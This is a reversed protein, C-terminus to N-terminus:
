RDRRPQRAAADLMALRLAPRDKALQVSAKSRSMGDDTLAKLEIKWQAAPNGSSESNSETSLPPCGNPDEAVQKELDAIRANATTVQSEAETARAEAAEVRDLLSRSLASQAAELTAGIRQQATVFADDAGSLASLENFTAARNQNESKESKESMTESRTRSPNQQNMGAEIAAVLRNMTEDFTAVQDILKLRVADAALHVRGDALSEVDATELDRGVAVAATFQAQIGIVLKQLYDVQKETIEIGPVGIGKFDGANILIPRIGEKEAAESFDYLIQYTGISGILAHPQNATIYDCQAALWYAASACLDEVHAYVPKRSALRTIEQALDATGAVTGGPSDIRLIVGDVSNDRALQRIEQRLAITGSSNTMSTGRKMLTGSIDVVAITLEDRNISVASKANPEEVSGHQIHVALDLRSAQDYIARFRVPEMLWAGFYEDLRIGSEALPRLDISETPALPEALQTM